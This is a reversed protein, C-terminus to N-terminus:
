ANDGEMIMSVTELLVTSLWSNKARRYIFSMRTEHTKGLTEKKLRRRLLRLLRPQNFLFPDEKQTPTEQQRPFFM